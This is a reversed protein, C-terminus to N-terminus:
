HWQCGVQGCSYCFEEEDLITLDDIDVLHLQNDGIMRVYVQGCEIDDELEEDPDPEIEYIVDGDDNYVVFDDWNVSKKPFKVFRFAIGKYGDVEFVLDTDEFNIETIM